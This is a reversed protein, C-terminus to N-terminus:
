CPPEGKQSITATNVEATEVAKVRAEMRIAKPTSPCLHQCLGCGNCLYANIRIGVGPILKIAEPECRKICSFCASNKALCFENYAVAMQDPQPMPTFDDPEPDVIPLDVEGKLADKVSFVTKGLSLLSKRIFDKRSINM